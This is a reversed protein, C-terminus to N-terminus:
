IGNFMWTLILGFANLVWMAGIFGIFFTIGGANLRATRRLRDNNRWLGRTRGDDPWISRYWRYIWGAIRDRIRWCGYAAALLLGGGIFSAVIGLVM